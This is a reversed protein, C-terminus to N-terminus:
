VAIQEIFLSTIHDAKWRPGDGFCMYSEALNKMLLRTLAKVEENHFATVEIGIDPSNVAAVAIAARELREFAAAGLQCRMHGELEPITMWASLDDGRSAYDAEVKKGLLTSVDDWGDGHLVEPSDGSLWGVDRWSRAAEALAQALSLNHLAPSHQLLDWVRVEAERPSPSHSIDSLWTAPAHASTAHHFLSTMYDVCAWWIQGAFTYRGAGLFPMLLIPPTPVSTARGADVWIGYDLRPSFRGSTQRTDVSNSELAGRLGNVSSMPKKELVRRPPFSGHGARAVAVAKMKEKDLVSADVDAVDAAVRIADHLGLEPHDDGAAKVIDAIAAKM